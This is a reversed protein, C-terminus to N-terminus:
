LEYSDKKMQSIDKTLAEDLICATMNGTSFSAQLISLHPVFQERLATTMMSCAECHSLIPGKRVIKLNLKPTNGKNDSRLVNYEIYLLARCM